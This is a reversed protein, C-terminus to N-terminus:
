AELIDYLPQFLHFQRHLLCLVLLIYCPQSLILLFSPPKLAFAVSTPLSSVDLPIASCGRPGFLVPSLLGLRDLWAPCPSGAILSPKYLAVTVFPCWVRSACVIYGEVLCVKLVQLTVVPSNSDGIPSLKLYLPYPCRVDQDLSLPGLDTPDEIYKLESVAQERDTLESVSTHAELKALVLCNKSFPSLPHSYCHSLSLCIHETRLCM